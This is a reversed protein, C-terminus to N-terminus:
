PQKEVQILAAVAGAPDEIVCFPKGGIPRPGDVVRGGRRQCEAISEEVDEVTVYILWQSPLGANPGRAHCIGAAPGENGPAMMNFDAYEGMSVPEPRWGTVAAYFDRITTADPVTLDTWVIAGPRMSDSM